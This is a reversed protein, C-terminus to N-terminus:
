RNRGRTVQWLDERPLIEFRVPVNENALGCKEFGQRKPTPSTAKPSNGSKPKVCPVPSQGGPNRDAEGPRIKRRQQSEPNIPASLRRPIIACPRAGM